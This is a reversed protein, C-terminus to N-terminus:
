PAVGAVIRDHGALDTHVVVEEFGAATFLAAVATGQDYGIEVMLRGKPELYARAGACITRYAALGDGDPTLASRPEWRTIEPALTEYAAETVYPPNSVILDFRGEVGDFWDARQLTLRDDVGHNRANRGAVALAADSIDTGVGHMGPREALVSVAIAGSGTGLDLMRRAPAALALDVLLETDPRPTLTDPTVKFARGYFDWQGLIQALPQRELRAALDAEFRAKASADPWPDDLHAILGASGVGLAHGMLLRAEREAEPPPLFAALAARANAYAARLSM